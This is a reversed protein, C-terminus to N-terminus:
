QFAWFNTIILQLLCFIARAPVDVIERPTAKGYLRDWHSGAITACGVAILLFVGLGGHKLPQILKTFFALPYDSSTM